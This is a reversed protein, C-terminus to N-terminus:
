FLSGISEKIVLVEFHSCYSAGRAPSEDQVGTKFVVKTQVSVVKLIHYNQDLTAVKKLITLIFALLGRLYGRGILRIIKKILRVRFILWPFEKSLFDAWILFLFLPVRDVLLFPVFILGFQGMHLCEVRPRFIPEFQFM